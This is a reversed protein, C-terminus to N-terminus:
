RTPLAPCGEFFYAVDVALVRAIGDLRSASFPAGGAEYRSLQADRFGSRGAVQRQTLGLMIRRERM